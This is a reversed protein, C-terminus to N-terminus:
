SKLTVYHETKYIFHVKHLNVQLTKMMSYVNHALGLAQAELDILVRPDIPPVDEPSQTVVSPSRFVSLFYLAIPFFFILIVIFSFVNIHISM